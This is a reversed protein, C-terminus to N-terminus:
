DAAVDLAECGVEVGRRGRTLPGSGGSGREGRGMQLGGGSGVGLAELLSEWPWTKPGVVQTLQLPLQIGGDAPVLTSPLLEHPRCHQGHLQAGPLTLAAWPGPPNPDRWAPVLKRQGCAHEPVM